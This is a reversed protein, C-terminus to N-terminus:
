ISDITEKIKAKEHKEEKEMRNWKFNPARYYERGKIYDRKEMGVYFGHKSLFLRPQNQDKMYCLEEKGVCHPDIYANIIHNGALFFMGSVFLALVFDM